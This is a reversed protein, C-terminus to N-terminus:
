DLLSPRGAGCTMVQRGHSDVAGLGRPLPGPRAPERGRAAYEASAM